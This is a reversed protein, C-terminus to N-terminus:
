GRSRFKGKRKGKPAENTFFAVIGVGSKGGVGVPKLTMVKGDGDLEWAWAQRKSLEAKFKQVNVAPMSRLLDAESMRDYQNLTALTEGYLLATDEESMRGTDVMVARTASDRWWVALRAAMGALEREKERIGDTKASPKGLLDSPKLQYLMALLYREVKFYDVTLECAGKVGQNSGASALRRKLHKGTSSVWYGTRIQGKHGDPFKVLGVFLNVFQTHRGGKSTRGEIAARAKYWTSDDIMRPFYDPIPPLPKDTRRRPTMDGLVCRSTLINAVLSSHWLGGTGLPPFKAQLEKVLRRVGIGECTRKFIYNVTKKAGDKPKWKNAKDDWSLWCPCRKNMPKGDETARRRRQEWSATAWQSKKRSEEHALVLATIVQFVMGMDNINTDDILTEPDLTLVRVGAEVLDGLVRYAKNTEHRSFRDLRELMLISGKPIKGEQALALFKGLDGTKPDLNRGRFASVGLDRLRLSTDLTHEPHRRM